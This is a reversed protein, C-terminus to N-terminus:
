SVTLILEISTSEILSTLMSFSQNALTRSFTTAQELLGIIIDVILDIPPKDDSNETNLSKRKHEKLGPFLNKSSDVADKFQYIHISGQLVLKLSVRLNEWDAEEDHLLGILLLGLILLEIGQSAENRSKSAKVSIM